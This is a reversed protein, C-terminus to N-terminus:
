EEVLLQKEMAYKKQLSEIDRYVLESLKPDIKGEMYREFVARVRPEALHKNCNIEAIKQARAQANEPKDPITLLGALPLYFLNISVGINKLKDEKLRIEQETLHRYLEDRSSYATLMNTFIVAFMSMFIAIFPIILNLVSADPNSSFCESVLLVIFFFSTLVCIILLFWSIVAKSKNIKINFIINELYRELLGSV